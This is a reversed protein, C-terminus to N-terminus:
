CTIQPWMVFEHKRYLGNRIYICKAQEANNSFHWVGTKIKMKECLEHQIVHYTIVNPLQLQWFPYSGCHKPSKIQSVSTVSHRWLPHPPTEFWWGWSQKSLRKNLRLDFFVDFSRTVPRQAPFEGPGTFEGCLHGTVRFINGNSFTMMRIEVSCGYCECAELLWYLWALLDDDNTPIRVNVEQHYSPNCKTSKKEIKM